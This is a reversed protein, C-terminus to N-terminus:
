TTNRERLRITRYCVPYVTVYTVNKLYFVGEICLKRNVKPLILELTAVNTERYTKNRKGRKVAQSRIDELVIEVEAQPFGVM